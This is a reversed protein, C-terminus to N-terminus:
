KFMNPFWLVLGPWYACVLTVITIGIEYPLLEKSLPWIGIRSISSMTYLCMGVPPTLLGIMSCLIMVVGFQLPDIGYQYIVPMFVPITIVLIAIGEMFCGLVLLVFIFIGMIVHPDSSLMTLDTIVQQPIRQHILLWGFFGAVSIIFMIRITHLITEWFIRYLDSFKVERYIGVGLILAYICGVVAAATPTYILPV